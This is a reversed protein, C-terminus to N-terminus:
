MNNFSNRRECKQRFNRVYKARKGKCKVAIFTPVDCNSNCVDKRYGTKIDSCKDWSNKSIRCYM